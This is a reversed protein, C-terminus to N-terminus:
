RPVSVTLCSAMVTVVSYLIVATRNWRPVVLDHM